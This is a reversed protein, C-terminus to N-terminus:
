INIRRLVENWNPEVWSLIKLTDRLIDLWQGTQVNEIAECYGVLDSVYSRWYSMSFQTKFARALEGNDAIASSVIRTPRSKQGELYKMKSIAQIALDIRGTTALDEAIDEFNWSANSVESIREALKMAVSFIADAMSTNYRDIIVAISSYMKPKYIQTEVKRITRIASVIDGIQSYAEAIPWSSQTRGIGHIDKRVVNIARRLLHQARNPDFHNVAIAVECLVDVPWQSLRYESLSRKEQSLAEAENILKEALTRNKPAITTAIYCLSKARYSLRLNERSVKLAFEYDGARTLAVALEHYLYPEPHAHSPTVIVVNTNKIATFAQQFIEKSRNDGNASMQSGLFILLSPKSDWYDGSMDLREMTKLADKFQNEYAQRQAIVNWAWHQSHDEVLEVLHRAYDYRGILTMSHIISSARLDRMKLPYKAAHLRNEIGIKATWLSILCRLSQPSLPDVFQEILMDIDNLTVLFQQSCDINSLHQNFKAIFDEKSIVNEPM